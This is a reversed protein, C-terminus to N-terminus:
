HVLLAVLDLWCRAARGDKQGRQRKAMPGRADRGVEGRARDDPGRADHWVEGGGPRRGSGRCRPTSQSRRRRGSM